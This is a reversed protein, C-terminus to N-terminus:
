FDYTFGFYIALILAVIILFLVKKPIIALVFNIVMNIPAIILGLM